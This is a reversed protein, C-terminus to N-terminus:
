EAAMMTVQPRMQQAEVAEGLIRAAAEADPLARLTPQVRRMHWPRVHPWLVFYSLRTEGSPTLVISGTKTDLDASEIRAFPLNVTLTLAAGVRMAVRETTITYVTARAQVYAIVFLIACAVAGVVLLPVGYGMATAWGMDAALTAGRLGALLVFYGAIWKLSLAQVALKWAKPRGQWLVSEGRPLAEPLGPIEEITFDPDDRYDRPM